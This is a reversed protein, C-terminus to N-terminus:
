SRDTNGVNFIMGDKIHVSQGEVLSRDHGHEDTYTVTYRITPGFPGSPFALRLIEDFSLRKEAVTVSEGNIIIDAEKSHGPPPTPTHEQNM